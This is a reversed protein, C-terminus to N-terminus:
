LPLEADAQKYVAYCLSFVQEAPLDLFTALQNIDQINLNRLKKQRAKYWNNNSMTMAEAIKGQKIGRFEILDYITEYLLKPQQEM